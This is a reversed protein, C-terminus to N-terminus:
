FIGPEGTIILKAKKHGKLAKMFDKITNKSSTVDTYRDSNLYTPRRGLAPCGNLEFWYNAWHFKAESRGGAVGKIEWLEMGFAPSHELVLDYEGIPICSVDKENNRWGRELAISVFAPCKNVDLVLCTGLTQNIDQCRRHLHVLPLVTEM